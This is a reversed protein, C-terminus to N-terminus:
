EYWSLVRLAAKWSGGAAGTKLGKTVDMLTESSYRIWHGNNGNCQKGQVTNPTLIVIGGLIDLHLHFANDFVM